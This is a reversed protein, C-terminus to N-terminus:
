KVGGIAGLLDRLAAYEPNLLSVLNVVASGTLFVLAFGGLLCGIFAGLARDGMGDDNQLWRYIPRAVLAVALVAVLWVGIWVFASVYVQRVALAFVHEGTPGLRKGLEDLIQALQDATM